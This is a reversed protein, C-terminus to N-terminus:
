SGVYEPIGQMSAYILKLDGYIRKLYVYILELGGYIVKLRRIDTM